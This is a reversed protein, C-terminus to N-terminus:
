ACQDSEFVVVGRDKGAFKQPCRHDELVFAEELRMEMKPRVSVEPPRKTINLIIKVVFGAKIKGAPKTQQSKGTM